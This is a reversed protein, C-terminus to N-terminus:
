NRTLFKLIGIFLYFNKNYSKKLKAFRSKNGNSFRQRQEYFYTSKAHM